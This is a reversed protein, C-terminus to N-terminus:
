QRAFGYRHLKDLILFPSDLVLTLLLLPYVRALRARYFSVISLPKDRGLYVFALIYGSLLFFFSVSIYGLAFLRGVGEDPKVAPFFVIVTHFLVVFLAAFFRLATLPHIREGPPSHTRRTGDMTYSEKCQILESDVLSLKGQVAVVKSCNHGLSLLYTIPSM